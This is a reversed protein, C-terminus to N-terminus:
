QGGGWAWGMAHQLRVRCNYLIHNREQWLWIGELKQRSKQQEKIDETIKEKTNQVSNISIYTTHYIICYM